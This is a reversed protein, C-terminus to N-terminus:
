GIAFSALMGVGSAVLLMLVVRRFGASSFRRYLAVGALTPLVVVPVTLAFAPIMAARLTGDLAYTVLTLSQMSLNFSQFVGRQTDMDWGRLTCWLTPAPGTLGSLGGMFGGVMGVAADAGRGGWAIAPLYRGVLVTGCYALLVIGVILRFLHQDVYPLVLAGAPAGILGGLVFPLSRSWGLRRRLAVLALLQCVCSGWVVLPGALRPAITWAWVTLALLGFGFGSLGQVFGGLVAGAVLAAAFSPTM